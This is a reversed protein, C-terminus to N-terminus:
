RALYGGDVPYYSGTVFSAKDSTLWLILEAVEESKGLRGIPHLSVLYKKVEENLDKLMPTEIFGPGVANIRINKGSYELAAAQTMGILGHKASTYGSAGAFAVSGLISSVNVISGGGQKLMETIQYKMCYFVSSLNVKIINEWGEITMDALANQEGSIGANNVAYDLRGYTKIVTNVLNKMEEAVSVNAKIFIAKGGTTRINEALNEADNIDSLVVNAGEKAYLEATAKGIGSAAGTILVTKGRM